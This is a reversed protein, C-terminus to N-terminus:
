LTIKYGVQLSNVNAATWSTNTNPDVAILNGFYNSYSSTLAINASTNTTTGSKTVIVIQRSNADDKRSVIIPTVGYVITGTALPTSNMNFLDQYNVTNAYNYSLDGDEQLGAIAGASSPGNLQLWVNQGFVTGSSSPNPLTTPATTSSQSYYLWSSGGASDMWFGPCTTGSYVMLMVAYPTGTTLTVNGGLPLVNVGTVLSSNVAGQSILYYYSNSTVYGYLCASISAGTGPTALNVTYSNITANPVTGLNNQITNPFASSNGPNNSILGYTGASFPQVSYTSSLTATGTFASNGQVSVPSTPQTTLVRCDGLFTNNPQTGPGTTGDCFYIDDINVPTSDFGLWVNNFTGSGSSNTNINTLSLINVGNLRVTITGTTSNITGGVELYIWNSNQLTFGTASGLSTGANNYATVTSSGSNGPIVIIKLQITSSDYFRVEYNGYIKIAQGLYGSNTANVNRSLSCQYETGNPYLSYGGFRGAPFYPSGATFVQSTWQSSTQFDATTWHDFGETFILAM